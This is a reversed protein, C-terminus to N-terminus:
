ARRERVLYVRGGEIHASVHSRWRRKSCVRWLARYLEAAGMGLDAPDVTAAGLGSDHFAEVLDNAAASAPTSNRLGRPAGSEEIRM